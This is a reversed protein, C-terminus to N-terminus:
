AEGEADVYSLLQAQVAAIKKERSPEAGKHEILVLEGNPLEFASVRRGTKHEYRKLHRRLDRDLRTRPVPSMQDVVGDLDRM